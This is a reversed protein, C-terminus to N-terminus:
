WSSARPAEGINKRDLKGALRLWEAACERALEGVPIATHPPISEFLSEWESPLVLHADLWHLFEALRGVGAEIQEPDLYSCSLRLAHTGSGNLHFPAM